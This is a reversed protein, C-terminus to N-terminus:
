DRPLARPLHLTVCTGKGVESELTVRGGHAEAITKVLALGLGTGQIHKERALTSRFFRQFLRAQEEPPIGIGTDRVSLRVENEDYEGTLTIVGGAPSFKVANSLLSLVARNIHTPDAPVPPVAASIVLDLLLGTPLAPRVTTDVSALLDAMDVLEPSLAFEGTDVKAFSLLDEVLSLLRAGNTDIVDLMRRQISGLEGAEEELLLETYGRISTLPTRLEHSVTAILDNRMRDLERLETDLVVAQEEVERRPTDDRIVNVFGRLTGDEAVAATVVTTAWFTSGDQRVRPGATEVRGTERADALIRALLGASVDEPRFFATAPQGVIESETFGFLREASPSWSTVVGDPDLSVVAHDRAGDLLLRQQEETMRLKAEALRHGTVDSNIEIVAHPRGNADRRMAQRSHVFVTGGDARRHRLEGTWLGTVLLATDVESRDGATPDFLAAARMGLLEARPRGYLTEAARNCYTIRDEADRILVADHALDLLALQGELAVIHAALNRDARKRDTVDSIVTVTGAGDPLRHSALGLQRDVVTIEGVAPDVLGAPLDTVRLSTDPLGLLERAARNTRTVRGHRDVIVVGDTVADLAARNLRRRRLAVQAAAGVAAGLLAAGVGYPRWRTAGAAEIAM